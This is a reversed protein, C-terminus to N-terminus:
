AYYTLTTVNYLIFFLLTEFYILRNGFYQLNELNKRVQSRKQNRQSKTNRSIWPEGFLIWCHTSSILTTVDSVNRSFSVGSSSNSRNILRFVYKENTCTTCQAFCMWLCHSILRSCQNSFQHKQRRPTQIPATDSVVCHHTRARSLPSFLISRSLNCPSAFSLIDNRHCCVYALMYHKITTLRKRLIEFIFFYFYYYIVFVFTCSNLILSLFFSVSYYNTPWTNPKFNLM